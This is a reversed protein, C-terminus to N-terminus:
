VCKKFALHSYMCRYSDHTVFFHLISDHRAYLEITYSLDYSYVYIILPCMLIYIYMDICIHTYKHTYIYVYIIVSAFRAYFQTMSCIHISVIGASSFSLATSQDCVAVCQFERCCVAVCQLESCCVAVCQLVSLSAYRTHRTVWVAFYQLVGCCVAVRQLVSCCVAVCQLVSCCV